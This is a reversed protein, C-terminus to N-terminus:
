HEGEVVGDDNSTETKAFGRGDKDTGGYQYAFPKPEYVEEEQQQVQHYQSPQQQYQEPQLLQQYAAAPAPRYERKM